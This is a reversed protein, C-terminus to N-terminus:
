VGSLFQGTDYGARASLNPLYPLYAKVVIFLDVTSHNM